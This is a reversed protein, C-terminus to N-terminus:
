RTHETWAKAWRKEGAIKGLDLATVINLLMGTAFFSWVEEASAGSRRDVEEVVQGCGDRV